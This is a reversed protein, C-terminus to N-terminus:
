SEASHVSLQIHEFARGTHLTFPIPRGIKLPFKMQRHLLPSSPSKKKQTKFISSFLLSPNSVVPKMTSPFPYELLRAPRMCSLFASRQKRVLYSLLVKIQSNDLELAQGRSVNRDAWQLGLAVEGAPGGVSTPASCPTQAKRIFVTRRTVPQRFWKCSFV